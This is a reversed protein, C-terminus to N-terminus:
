LTLEYSSYCRTNSPSYPVNILEPLSQFGRYSPTVEIVLEQLLMLRAHRDVSEAVAFDCSLLSM